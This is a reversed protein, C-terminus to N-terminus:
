KNHTTIPARVQATMSAGSFEKVMVRDTSDFFCGLYSSGEPIAVVGSDITFLEMTKYGGCTFEPNSECNMTCQGDASSLTSVDTSGCFCRDSSMTTTCCM